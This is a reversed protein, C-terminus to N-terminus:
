VKNVYFIYYKTPPDDSINVLLNLYRELNRNTHDYCDNFYAREYLSVSDKVLNGNDIFDLNNISFLKELLFVAGADANHIFETYFKSNQYKPSSSTPDSVLSFYGCRGNTESNYIARFVNPYNVYLLILHILDDTNIGKSMFDYEDSDFDFLFISNFIRKIKRIDSIYKKYHHYEDSKIIEVLGDVIHHAKEVLHENALLNNQIAEKLNKTLYKTFTTTNLFLSLKVNIFKELFDNIYAIDNRDNDSLVFNDSDYCLVFTVNPLKFSQKISFLINKTANWNIRDLDDVIIIIKREINELIQKLNDLTDQVTKSEHNFPISIGLNSLFSKNKVIYNYYVLLSRLEPTFEHKQITTIFDNIFHSSLDSNESYRLPEFKYIIPKYTIDKEWYEICINIFSTKGIGWPSDIGFILSDSSGRNLVRDSFKSASEEMDLYDENSSVVEHDSIFIPNSYSETDDTKRIM